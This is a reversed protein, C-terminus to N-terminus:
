PVHTKPAMLLPIVVVMTWIGLATGLPVQGLQGFALLLLLFLGWTKRRRAGYGAVVGLVGMVLFLGAFTLGIGGFMLGVWWAAPEGTNTDPLTTALGGFGMFVLGFAVGALGLLASTVMWVLGLVNLQPDLPENAMPPRTM